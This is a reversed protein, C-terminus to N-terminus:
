SGDLVDAHHEHVGPGVPPPHDAVEDVTKRTHEDDTLRAGLGARQRGDVSTVGADHHEVDLHGEVFSEGSNGCKPRV